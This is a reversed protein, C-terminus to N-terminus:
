ASGGRFERGKELLEDYTFDGGTGTGRDGKRKCEEVYDGFERRERPSMGLERAAAEFKRIDQKKAV